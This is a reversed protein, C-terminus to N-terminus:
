GDGPCAAGVAVCGETGPVRMEAFDCGLEPPPESWPACDPVDAAVFRPAWGDPCPTLAPPATPEPPQAVRESAGADRGGDPTGADAPTDAPAGGGSCGACALLTAGAAAALRWTQWGGEAVGGM